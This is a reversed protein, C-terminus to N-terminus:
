AEASGQSEAEAQVEALIRDFEEDLEQFLELVQAVELEDPEKAVPVEAVVLRSGWGTM